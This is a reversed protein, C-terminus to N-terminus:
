RAYYKRVQEPTLIPKTLVHAQLHVLRLEAQLAGITRVQKDLESETMAGAKFSADLAREANVISAGLARARELVQKRLAALHKQQETTLGLETARELLHKPGPYGNMEAPRALGMGDGNRLQAVMEASLASTAIADATSPQPHVHQPSSAAAPRGAWGPDTGDTAKGKFRSTSVLTFEPTLQARWEQMTNVFFNPSPMPPRSRQEKTGPDPTMGIVNNTVVYSKLHKTFCGTGAVCNEGWFGYAGWSIVNNTFRFSEAVFQAPRKVPEPSLWVTAVALTTINAGQDVTNHDIVLAGIDGAAQMFFGSVQFYNHSITVRTMRGSPHSEDIGLLNLAGGQVHRVINRRFTVDEITSWPASGDQNRVTFLIAHGPQGDPWNNEFVNDEITVRKVAKLEFLNKVNLGTGALAKWELPKSFHNGKVLVDAPINAATKSDAGGFLVNESAAELYNNVITYPGAGDWSCIAQSDQGRAWFRAIHSDRVTINKGNMRIGRKTGEPNAILVVRDFTINSADQVVVVEGNTWTSPVQFAIGEFRWNGVSSGEASLVSSNVRNTLKALLRADPCTDSRTFGQCITREPLTASTRVRIVAGFPKAPLRFEGFWEGGAQLVVEDGPVAKNIIAHLDDGPKVVYQTAAYAPAAAVLAVAVLSVIGSGSM